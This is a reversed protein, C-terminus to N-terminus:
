RLEVFQRAGDGNHADHLTVSFDAEPWKTTMGLRGSSLYGVLEEAAEGSMMKITKTRELM